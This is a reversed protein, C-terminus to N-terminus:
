LIQRRLADLRHRVQVLLAHLLKASGHLHQLSDTNASGIHGLLRSLCGPL